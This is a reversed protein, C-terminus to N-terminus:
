PRQNDIYIDFWRNNTYVVPKKKLRNKELHLYELSPLYLDPLAKIENNSADLRKLSPLGNAPLTTLFNNSVELKELSRLNLSKITKLNAEEATLVKLRPLSLTSGNITTLNSEKLELKELFNASLKELTTIETGNLYLEKLYAPIKPNAFSKIPNYSLNLTELATMGRLDPAQSLLNKKLSLYTLKPLSLRAFSSIQNHSLSLTKLNPAKFAAIKKIYGGDLDLFKLKPANFAPVETVRYGYDDANSLDLTELSPLYNINPFPRAIWDDKESYIELSQLKPLKLVFDKSSDHEVHSTLRLEQLDTYENFAAATHENLPMSDDCVIKTPTITSCSDSIWKAGIDPNGKKFVPKPKVPKPKPKAPAPKPKPKAPAPKPKAPAPKPKAAPATELKNNQLRYLFAAMADRHIPTVPRYYRKGNSGPWGTSILTRRLWEMEKAFDTGKTVDAFVKGSPNFNKTVSRVAKSVKAPYKGAFRYIFAAMADRNVPGDPNFYRKGDRVWGTTIGTSAMWSIQQYFPHNTPVDAFKSTAPAQYNKIGAMRYLFAAMAQREINILPRYARQNNGAPWGTSIGKDALWAMEGSLFMNAPVDVFKGGRPKASAVVIKTAAQAAPVNNEGTVMPTLAPLLGSIALGTTAAIAVLSRSRM